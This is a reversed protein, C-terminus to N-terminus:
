GASVALVHHEMSELDIVMARKRGASSVNFHRGDRGFEGHIHGHIHARPATREVFDRLAMSGVHQGGRVRDLVGFVPGHTVLVTRSDIEAELQALDEAIEDEPREHIGGMFPLTYQYGMFNFDGIEIRKGHVSQLLPSPADLEIFDDNGMVYLMPCDIRSLGRLVQVRDAAQAEEITDFAGGWGLLDGALVVADPEEAAAVDVLWEYIERFGHLDALALLRMVRILGKGNGDFFHSVVSISLLTYFRWTRGPAQHHERCQRRFGGDEFDTTRGSIAGVLEM